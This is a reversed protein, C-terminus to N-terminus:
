CGRDAFKIEFVLKETIFPPKLGNMTGITVSTTINNHHTIVNKKVQRKGIGDEYAPFERFHTCVM